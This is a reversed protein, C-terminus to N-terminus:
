LTEEITKLINEIQEIKNIKNTKLINKLINQIEELLEDTSTWSVKYLRHYLIRSFQQENQQELEKILKSIALYVDEIKNLNTM